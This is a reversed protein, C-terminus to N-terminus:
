HRRSLRRGPDMTGGDGMRIMVVRVGKECGGGGKWGSGVEWVHVGQWMNIPDISRVRTGLAAAAVLQEVVVNHRVKVHDLQYLANLAAGDAAGEGLVSIRSQTSVVSLAALATSVSSRRPLRAAFRSRATAVAVMRDLARFCSSFM